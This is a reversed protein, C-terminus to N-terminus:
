FTYEKLVIYALVVLVIGIVIVIVSLKIRKSRERLMDNYIGKRVELLDADSLTTYNLELRVERDYVSEKLRKYRDKNKRLKANEATSKWSNLNLAM